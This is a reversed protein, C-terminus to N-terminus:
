IGKKNKMRELQRYNGRIAEICKLNHERRFKKEEEDKKQECDLCKSSLDHYIHRTTARCIKCWKDILLKIVEKWTHGTENDGSDNLYNVLAENLFRQASVMSGLALNNALLLPKIFSCFLPNNEKIKYMLIENQHEVMLILDLLDEYMKQVTDIPVNRKYTIM